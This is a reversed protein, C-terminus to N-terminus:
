ADPMESQPIMRYGCNQCFKPMGTHSVYKCHNCTYSYSYGKRSRTWYSENPKSEDVVPANGIYKKRVCLEDASHSEWSIGEERVVTAILDDLDILRGM